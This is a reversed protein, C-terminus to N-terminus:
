KGNGYLKKYGEKLKEILGKYLAKTTGSGEYKRYSDGLMLRHSAMIDTGHPKYGSIENKADKESTNVVIKKPQIINIAKEISPKFIPEKKQYKSFDVLEGV